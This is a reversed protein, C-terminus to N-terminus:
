PLYKQVVSWGTLSVLAFGVLLIINTGIHLPRAWPFQPSILTASGASLLVFGVVALGSPLHISHNLSGYHGLTGVIGITLLLLVLAVMTGGIWYHLPRLWNPRSRRSQRIYLMWIGSAALLLYAVLSFGMSWAAIRWLWIFDPLNM